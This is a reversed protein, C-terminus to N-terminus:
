PIINTETKLSALEGTKLSYMGYGDIYSGKKSPIIANEIKIQSSTSISDGACFPCWLGFKDEDNFWYQFSICVDTQYKCFPSKIVSKEGILNFSSIYTFGSGKNIANNPNIISTPDNHGINVNIDMTKGVVRDALNVDLGYNLNTIAALAFPISLTPTSAAFTFKSLDSLGLIIPYSSDYNSSVNLLALYYYLTVKNEMTRFPLILTFDSFPDKLTFELKNMMQPLISQMVSNYGYCFGDINTGNCAVIYNSGDQSMSSLIGEWGSFFIALRKSKAADASNLKGKFIFLSPITSGDLRGLGAQGTWFNSIFPKFNIFKSNDCTYFGNLLNYSIVKREISTGEIKEMSVIYADFYGKEEMPCGNGIEFNKISFFLDTATSAFSLLLGDSNTASYKILTGGLSNTSLSPIDEVSIKISNHTSGTSDEFTQSSGVKKVNPSVFIYVGAGNVINTNVTGGVTPNVDNYQTKLNFVMRQNENKLVRVGKSAITSPDVPIASSSLPFSSITLTSTPIWNKGNTTPLSVVNTPSYAPLISFFSSFEPSYTQISIM